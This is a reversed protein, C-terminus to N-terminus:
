PAFTMPQASRQHRCQHSRQREHVALRVRRWLHDRRRICPHRTKNPVLYSCLRWERHLSSCQNPVIAQRLLKVEEMFAEESPLHSELMIAEARLTRELTWRLLDLDSAQIPGHLDLMQRGGDNYPHNIHVERVQALPLGALYDRMGHTDRRGMNYASVQAHALDLLMDCGIEAILASFTAPECVYEYANTPHYNYNELLLPIGLWAILGKANRTINALCV